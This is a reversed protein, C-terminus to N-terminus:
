VDVYYNPTLALTVLTLHVESSEVGGCTYFQVANSLGQTMHAFITTNRLVM